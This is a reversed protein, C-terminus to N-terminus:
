ESMRAWAFHPSDQAEIPLELREVMAWNIVQHHLPLYVNAEKAIAWAEAIFADRETLDVTGEMAQTLEDLRENSFGTFNWSGETTYLFNFVYHSDLTPVGWGLMYFDYDRNQLEAFHISKSQAVLNVEIGIRALMGVVAQCIAEDNVYRDNPCNLTTAFGDAYGAEAMLVKAAAVDFAPREDLAKTYGHVGPSTVIGAPEALGRMVRDRIAEINIALAMAERVKPEKFPNGDSFRLEDSGIDLGFFITRIQPTSATKLGATAKIRELDQVPPDLLFDIEGSLLAATRTAPNAIPSYVIEDINHPNAELGWWDPNKVMVTRVDPERITLKFAGTGNANRVAYNEEGGAFDQPVGVDNAEAWARSVMMLETLQNPLIPNPAKTHIRVTMDDVAEVSEVSTIYDGFDSTEAKAREFSFVVDDATFPTGDHFTVGPRLEFAWVTPEVAEWSLALGPQMVLDANRWILPEYVQQNATNTPGENQAHPDFTLADGQSAWRLTNAAAAAAGVGLLLVAAAAGALVRALM